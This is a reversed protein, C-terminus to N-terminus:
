RHASLSDSSVRREKTSRGTSRRDERRRMEVRAYGLLLLAGALEQSVEYIEGPQLSSVDIGEISGVPKRMVKIRM